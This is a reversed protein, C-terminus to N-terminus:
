KESKKKRERSKCNKFNKNVKLPLFFFSPGRGNWIGVGVRGPFASLAVSKSHNADCRTNLDSKHIVYILNSKYDLFAKSGYLDAGGERGM